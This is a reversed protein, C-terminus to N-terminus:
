SLIKELLSLDDYLDDLDKVINSIISITPLKEEETAGIKQLITLAKRKRSLIIKKQVISLELNDKLTKLDGFKLEEIAEIIYKRNM